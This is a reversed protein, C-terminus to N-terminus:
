LLTACAILFAGLPLALLLLYLGIQVPLAAFWEVLRGTQAAPQVARLFLAAM